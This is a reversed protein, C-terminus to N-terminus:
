HCSYHLSHEVCGTSFDVISCSRPETVKVKIRSIKRLETRFNVEQKGTKIGVTWKVLFKNRWSFNPILKKTEKM